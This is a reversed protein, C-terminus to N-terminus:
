RNLTDYNGGLAEILVNVKNLCEEYELEPVSNITIGAGAQMHIKKDKIVMTRIAICTDINGDFSFYGVAGGYIGRKVTELEDIIEMARIKPAGSLTGAPLFSALVSFPTEKEEKKGEVLSVIHMVHSYNQVSMFDTVKVTGIKAVKGMDNRALDVLMVHEAREKPDALLESALAEDIEATAGRKRTGAIPCNKIHGDKLEVLMEPSSGAIKYEGFNFYFLYPSPNTSRLVRYIEFADMDQEMTWRQSLVVQFIDGEVIYKKAKNVMEVYQAKTTNGYVPKKEKQIEPFNIKVTSTFISKKIEDLRKQASEADGDKKLVVLIIKEHFHDFIVGENVFFLESDPLNLEDPNNNPIDEFERIIDYGITGYAGGVFPLKSPNKVEIKDLEDRFYDMFKSNTSIKRDDKFIENNIYTLRMFPNKSIFSYRGKIADKSELLFGLDEGVYKRFISIPTEMDAIFTEFVPELVIRNM